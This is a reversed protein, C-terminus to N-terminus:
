RLKTKDANEEQATKNSAAVLAEKNKKVLHVNRRRRKRGNASCGATPKPRDFL